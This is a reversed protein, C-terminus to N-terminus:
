RGADLVGHSLNHRAARQAMLRKVGGGVMLAVISSLVLLAIENPDATGVVVVLLIATLPAGLAMTLAAAEICLVFISVPVGPFLLSLALGFMTCSFLIPFTPGGLFGSKFSLALLLLKLIGLGLLALVGYSAPNAIMPFIQKEGAFMVEPIFFVVIAIVIGAALARLVVRDQFIRETLTSFVRFSLAVFLAVLVGVIGLVIAYLIYPVTIQGIPTFAIYQAFVPFKLLTYFLYGIVGALLNWALFALANAGGVGLETAFVGTFLPSGIIGNYASAMAAVDFGHATERSINLKGRIWATIDGVLIGVPAEPGVSAGSLLSAFSSLLAGPFTTYDSEKGGKFAEVVGGHIVTPARLYKQGLGVLLSFLLVGLPITWRRTVFFNNPWIADTLVGLIGLFLATFIIAVLAIGIIQWIKPPADPSREPDASTTVPVTKTLPTGHMDTM